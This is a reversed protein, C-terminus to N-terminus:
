IGGTMRKKGVKTKPATVGYRKKKQNSKRSLQVSGGGRFQTTGAM